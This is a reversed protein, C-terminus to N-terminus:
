ERHGAKKMAKAFLRAEKRRVRRGTAVQDYSAYKRFSSNRTAFAGRFGIQEAIEIVVPNLLRIVDNAAAAASQTTNPKM